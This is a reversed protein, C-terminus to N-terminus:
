AVLSHNGPFTRGGRSRPTDSTLVEQGAVLLSTKRLDAVGLTLKRGWRIYEGARLVEAFKGKHYLLGVYGEPVLFARRFKFVWPLGIIVGVTFAIAIITNIENNM